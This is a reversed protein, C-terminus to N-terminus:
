NKYNVVLKIHIKNDMGSPWSGYTEVVFEGNKIKKIIAELEGIVEEKKQRAVRETISERKGM